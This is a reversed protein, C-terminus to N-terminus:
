AQITYIKNRWEMTTKAFDLTDLVFVNIKGGLRM